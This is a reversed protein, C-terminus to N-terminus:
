SSLALYAARWRSFLVAKVKDNIKIDNPTAIKGNKIIFTEPSMTISVGSTTNLPEGESDSALAAIEIVIVNNAGVKSIRGAIDYDRCLVSMLEALVKVAEARTIPNFPRFSNDPYGTVLGLDAATLISAAGWAPFVDEDSFRGKGAINDPVQITTEGFQQRLARVCMIVLEARNLSEDPRFTANGYGHIIGLDATAEIYGTGWYNKVVDIFRSRAGELDRAKADLGLSVALMKAFEARTVVQEPLFTGDPYGSVVQKALMLEIQPEAWHGRIDSLGQAALATGGSSFVLAACLMLTVLWRSLGLRENL